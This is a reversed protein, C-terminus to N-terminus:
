GDGGNRRGPRTPIPVNSLSAELAAAAQPTLIKHARALDLTAHALARYLPLADPCEEALAALHKEVTAADGRAIPGTLAQGAGHAAVNEVAGRVLPLLAATAEEESVGFREWLGAALHLLTVLYNAALVASTHYLAKAQPPLRLSRAGLAAALAELRPLLAPDGELACTTGQFPELPDAAPAAFTQLPHLSGVRAGARAAAALPALSDAGSTHIVAQGPRWAVAEAVAALATDPVTLFVLDAADAVHQASPVARAAPLQGALREASAPTRSAVAVVPWGVAALARALAGGARGAGVFGIREM